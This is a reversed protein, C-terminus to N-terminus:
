STASRSRAAAADDNSITGVGQADSITAGNTAGSLNVNFTENAEVKTDGNIVVSFTKSMENAAFQLTNSTAAYDGDATTASGDATAYNVNFAATGGSRVVTFTVVKTGADGEGIMVDSIAVSGATAGGSLVVLQDNFQAKEISVLTDTGDLGAVTVTGNANTTITYNARNGSFVATDTGGAGDLTDNGLASVITNDVGNGTLTLGLNGLGIIKSVGNGATLSVSTEVTSQDVLDILANRGATINATVTVPAALNGGSFTITQTGAGIARSYNGASATVVTGASTAVSIGGRGEGVSYFANADTDNYAIGTLFQGATAPRGFDQTILSSTTGNFTGIAQGIGIEQFNDNLMNYRHGRWSAYTDVFLSQHQLYIAQTADIAGYVPQQSVNEGWWSFSYGADRLNAEHTQQNNHYMQQQTLMDQSHQDAVAFLSSNWALPQKSAATITVVNGNFDRVPGENVNIGYDAAEGAPDLRARNILAWSLIEQPTPDAM